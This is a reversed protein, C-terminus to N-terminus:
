LDLHLKRIGEASSRADSATRGWSGTSDLVKCFTFRSWPCGPAHRQVGTNLWTGTFM